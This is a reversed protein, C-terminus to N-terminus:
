NSRELIRLVDLCQNICPELDPHCAVFSRSAYTYLKEQIPIICGGAEQVLLAGPAYDHIDGGAHLQLRAAAQGEAVLTFGFGGGSPAAESVLNCSSVIRDIDTIYREKCLVPSVMPRSKLDLVKGNKTAGKGKQAVFMDDNTPNYIVAGMVDGAIILTAMCTFTAINQIFSSTGDIPDILWCDLPLNNEDYGSEEGLVAVNPFRKQLSSSIIAEVDKDIQTVPSGDQKDTFVMKGANQLILMRVQKFCQQVGSLMEGIEFDNM